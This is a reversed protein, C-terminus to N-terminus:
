ATLEKMVGAVFGDLEELSGDNVYVFDARKVKEDDPILRDSREDVAAQSRTARVEAPATVVVVKDFRGEGGAEYLLPVETVSVPPPNPLEGLQERWQLYERVVLPHLLAELWALAERDAFVVDAIASRDVQGADDLIEDGLRDLLAKRVDVDERLLRHVIDDSSVTAAGHRAFAALAESKGAGIGGTIAVAAPRKM